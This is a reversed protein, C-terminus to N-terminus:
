RENKIEEEFIMVYQNYAVTGDENFVPEEMYGKFM